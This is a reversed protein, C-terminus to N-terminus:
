HLCSLLEFTKLTKMRATNNEIAFTLTSFKVNSKTGSRLIESAKQIVSLFIKTLNTVFLWFAQNFMPIVDSTVAMIHLIRMLTNVFLFKTFILDYFSLM